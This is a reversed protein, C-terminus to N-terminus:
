AQEFILVYDTSQALNTLVTEYYDLFKNNTKPILKVWTMLIHM